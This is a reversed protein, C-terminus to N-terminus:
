NKIGYTHPNHFRTSMEVAFFKGEADDHYGSYRMIYNIALYLLSDVGKILYGDHKM